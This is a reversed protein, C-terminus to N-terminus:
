KEMLKISKWLGGFGSYDIVQVALLNKEGPKLTHTIELAFAKDWGVAREAVFADNLWVRAADDAAGIVLFVRKGSEIAPADFALRYWGRGNFQEGYEDWFKGIGIPRWSSDDFGALYWGNKAGTNPKDRKYKWGDKPFDFVETMTERMGAFTEDDSYGALSSAKRVDYAAPYPNGSAKDKLHLRFEASMLGGEYRYNNGSQDAVTLFRDLILPLEKGTPLGPAPSTLVIAQDVAARQLRVRRLLEENNGVAKEASEFLATSKNIVEPSLFDYNTNTWPLRQRTSQVSDCILNLYRRMYKGAPGYYGNLFRNMLVNEDSNPNWMLHALLWTKMTAFNADPNYGDGQEFLCMVKDKAFLRVNPALSRFNPHPMLLNEFGVTYDWVYLHSSTRKWGMLDEYFRANTPSTLPKAFDCEISCLRVVVNQRAKVHAPPKRTYLYALTEVLFGPRKKEIDQAVANVFTILPGSEAGERKAIARCKACECPRFSDNQSISVIGAEPSKEIWELVKRTLEQRLGPNTLCLQANQATRKGAIESFWEPHKAFYKDPPILQYFTHCFGLISYHGGWEPDISQFHGNLRLKVAFAGSSGIMNKYFTERCVFPPAYTLDKLIIRLTPKKPVYEAAGTWWQCGITDELFTYVAYLTGRPRDGALILDSGIRRIVIGDRGLKGFAFGSMLQRTTKTQGIYIRTQRQANASPVIAFNAGTVSNLYKALETAATREPAIADKPLVIVARAKGKESLLIDGGACCGTPLLLLVLAAILSSRM